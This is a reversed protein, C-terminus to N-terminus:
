APIAPKNLVDNRYESIGVGGRAGDAWRMAERMQNFSASTRRLAAAGQPRDRVYGRMTKKIIHRAASALCIQPM